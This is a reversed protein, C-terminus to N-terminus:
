WRWKGAQMKEEGWTTMTGEKLDGRGLEEGALGSKLGRGPAESGSWRREFGEHCAGSEVWQRRQRRM